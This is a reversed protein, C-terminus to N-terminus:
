EGLTDAPGSELRNVVKELLYCGGSGVLVKVFFAYGVPPMLVTFVLSCWFGFCMPCQVLENIKPNRILFNHRWDKYWPITSWAVLYWMTWVSLVHLLADTM